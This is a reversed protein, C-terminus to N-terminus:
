LVSGAMTAEMMRSKMAAQPIPANVSPMVVLYADVGCAM